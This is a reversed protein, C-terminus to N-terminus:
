FILGRQTKVCSRFMKCLSLQTWVNHEESIYVNKCLKLWPRRPTMTIYYHPLTSNQLVRSDRDECFYWLGRFNQDRVMDNYLTVVWFVVVQIASRCLEWVGLRTLHCAEFGSVALMPWSCSWVQTHLSSSVFLWWM